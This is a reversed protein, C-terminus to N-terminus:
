HKKLGNRFFLTRKHSTARPEHSTAQPGSIIPVLKNEAYSIIHDVCQILLPSLAIVKQFMSYIVESKYEHAIENRLIRIEVFESANEIIGKKEARNIRDRVTGADELEVIDITRFAKQIIMDSLRAFRGTLAEFSELEDLTLGEMLEIKQCKALSHLLVDRGKELDALVQQLHERTVRM